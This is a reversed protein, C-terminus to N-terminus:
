STFNGPGVRDGDLGGCELDMIFKLLQGTYVIISALNGNTL